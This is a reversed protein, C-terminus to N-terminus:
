RAISTTAGLGGKNPVSFQNAGITADIAANLVDFFGDDYDGDIYNLNWLGSERIEVRPSQRGLWTPSPEEIPARRGSLLSIANREIFSRQSSPGPEDSVDVWLITMNGIYDSVRRELIEEAQLAMADTRLEPPRVSGKGWTPIALNDRARIAAGVHLRFISGRHNGNGSKPGLHARLRARLTSKSGSSVAHTGVRTVRLNGDSTLEGPERFFYVGRVPLNKLSSLDALRGGQGPANELRALAKYFNTLDDCNEKMWSECSIRVSMKPIM